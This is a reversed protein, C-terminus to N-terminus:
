RLEWAMLEAFRVVRCSSTMAALEESHQNSAGRLLGIPRSVATM